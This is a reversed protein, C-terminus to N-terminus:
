VDSGQAAEWILGGRFDDAPSTVLFGVVHSFRIIHCRQVFATNVSKSLMNDGTGVDNLRRLPM